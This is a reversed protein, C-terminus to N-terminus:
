TKNNKGMKSPWWNWKKLFMMVTPVFFPWSIFTDVLVGLALGLGIEQMIGIGSTYLAGFTVFLLLGLTVIVGGNEKISLMTAEEDTKGKMVEERVRTVMFIDYDLGVALLTIFTFLPLFILIPEGGADHVLLFVISLAVLVSSVVMGLLRAPTFLSSLQILLVIFIAILLVPIMKLFTSQTYSHADNFSQTQGGIYYNTVGGQGNNGTGNIATNIIGPMTGVFNSAQQRWSLTALQFDISVYRSDNGIFSNTQNRYTSHYASPIGSLDAPVYGGYPYTPGYVQTIESQNILANEVATVRNMETMNYSGNVILPSSFEMIVYGRDFFDGNFSNNVVELAKIGSSSPVLDYVDMSTPTLVYVYTALFTLVLFAALIKKKNNRVVNAIKTMSHELPFKEAHTINSPWYLRKGAKQLLAILFTNALVISIAVGIANTIGSDSFIPINSAWLVIYSLTVTIGSTFVAHGAWQGADLVADPNKRRMEQRYRSMIYVVYDSTLGLILILLLTPTIFSISAHFIYKYILGNVGMSMVTSMGFVGLPIFAAIPSRFFLGVILISLTIGIALAKIMGSLIENNLQQELASAGAVYYQSNPLATKTMNNAIDSVTNVVSISYNQSFTVIMITTKNNYGVFQHYVYETPIVPYTSFSQTRLENNVLASISDTSNLEKLYAELTSPNYTILPSGKLTYKTGNYVMPIMLNLIQAPTSPQGLTYVDELFQKTTLNLTGNFFSTLTANSSLQTDFTSITYNKLFSYYVSGYPYNYQLFPYGGYIAHFLEIQQPSASIVAYFPSSNNYLSWFISTNMTTLASAPNGDYIVSFNQSFSQVYTTAIFVETSNTSINQAVQMTQDYAYTENNFHSPDTLNSLYIGPLGYMLGVTSNVSQNLTYFNSNISSILSYTSNLELKLGKSFNNLTSNELTFATTMNDYGKVTSFYSYLKHELTLVGSAGSQTAVDTNNTVIILSSSNSGTGGPSSFYTSQLDSAKQAMSNAPVISGSLNYSTNNLFLTSSPAVVILAIIWVIIVATSHKASFGAIKRFTAEFMFISVPM